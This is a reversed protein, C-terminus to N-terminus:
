NPKKNAEPRPAAGATRNSDQKPVQVNVPNHGKLVEVSNFFANSVTSAKPFIDGLAHAPFSSDIGTWAHGDHLPVALDQVAHLALATDGSKMASSVVENTGARAEAKTQRDGNPKRGEMAHMNTHASDAGQSGRRFDVMATQIALKASGIVGHGTVLGAAFTIAIHWPAEFHGDPDVRGVPNNGVYGYLNLTQPDDLKAYPVPEEKASWDPSMFRGFGSSFYRAEFYDNGSEPDREKGTFCSRSFCVTAACIISNM